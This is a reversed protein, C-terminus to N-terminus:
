VWMEYQFPFPRGLRSSVRRHAKGAILDEATKRVLSWIKPCGVWSGKGLVLLKQCYSPFLIMILLAMEQPFFLFTSIQYIPCIAVGSIPPLLYSSPVGATRLASVAWAKNKKTVRVDCAKCKMIELWDSNFLSVIITDFSYSYHTATHCRVIWIVLLFSLLKPSALRIDLM